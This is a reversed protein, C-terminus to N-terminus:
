LRNLLAKKYKSFGLEGTISMYFGAFLKRVFEYFVGVGNFKYKKLVLFSGVYYSSRYKKSKDRHGVVVSDFFLSRSSEAKCRISYDLDEGGNYIAGVGLRADFFGVREAIRGSVFITNSSANHIVDIYNPNYKRPGGSSNEASTGYRSFLFDFGEDCVASILENFPETYYWSDDDPYAVVDYGGLCEVGGLIYNRAKSLPMIEHTTDIRKCFRSYKSMYEDVASSDVNQLLLFLNIEVSEKLDSMVVNLHQLMKDLKSNDDSVISTTVLLVRKM